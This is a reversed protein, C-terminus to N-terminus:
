WDLDAAPPRMVCVPEWNSWAALSVARSAQCCAASSYARVCTGALSSTSSVLPSADLLLLLLPRQNAAGVVAAGVVAAGVVAAGLPAALSFPLTANRVLSPLSGVAKSEPM